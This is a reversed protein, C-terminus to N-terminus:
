VMWFQEHKFHAVTPHLIYGKDEDGGQQMDSDKGSINSQNLAKTM